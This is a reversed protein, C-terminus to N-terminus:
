KDKLHANFDTTDLDATPDPQQGWKTIPHPADIQKKHEREAEVKAVYALFSKNYEDGFHEEANVAPAESMTPDLLLSTPEKEEVPEEEDGSVQILDSAIDLGFSQRLDCALVYETAPVSLVVDVFHIEVNKVGTFGLPQTQFMMKKPRSIDTPRYKNIVTEIVDMTDEDIEYITKIRFKYTKQVAEYYEKFNM